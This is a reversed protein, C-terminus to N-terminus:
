GLLNKLAFIFIVAGSALNVYKLKFKKRFKIVVASLSIWWLLAGIFVGLVVQISNYDIMQNESIDVCTFLALFVLIILPNSITLFFASSCDLYLSSSNYKTMVEKNKSVDMRAVRFAFYILLLAAIFRLFSDYEYIIYAVSSMGIIAILAYIMDAIAAGAGSIVGSFMDKALTRQVCLLGVPGVPASIAIGILIGKLLLSM